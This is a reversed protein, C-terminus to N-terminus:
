LQKRKFVTEPINRLVWAVPRWIAPTYIINRNGHLAHRVVTAAVVEPTTTLSKPLVLDKTMKTAVYGPRITLVRVGKPYLYQRLGSLYADFGAKASSYVVTSSKGRVAGASSIGVITGTGKAAFRQAIHGLIHVAGSYNVTIAREADGDFLARENDPLVGAAYIVGDFDLNSIREIVTNPKSIDLAIVEHQTDPIENPKHAGLFIVVNKNELYPICAQAIDSNAGLILFRRNM